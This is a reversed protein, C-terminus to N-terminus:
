VPPLYVTGTGLNRFPGRLNGDLWNGTVQTNEVLVSSIYVGYYQTKVAQDDTSVNATVINGVATM